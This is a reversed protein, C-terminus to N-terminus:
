STRDIVFAQLVAIDILKGFIRIETKGDRVNLTLGTAKDKYDFGNVDRHTKGSLSDQRKGVVYLENTM